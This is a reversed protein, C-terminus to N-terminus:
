LFMPWYNASTKSKILSKASKRIKLMKHMRIKKQCFWRFHYNKDKAFKTGMNKKYYSSKAVTNGSKPEKGCIECKRAM